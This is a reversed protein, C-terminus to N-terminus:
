NLSFNEIKMNFFLECLSTRRSTRTTPTVANSVLCFDSIRKHVSLTAGPLGRLFRFIQLYTNVDRDPLAEMERILNNDVELTTSQYNRFEKQLEREEVAKKIRYYMDPDREFMLTFLFSRPLSALKCGDPIFKMLTPSTKILEVVEPTTALKPKRYWKM